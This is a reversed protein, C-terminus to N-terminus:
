GITAALVARHTPKAELYLQRGQETLVVFIGRRDMECMSRQVLGEREMRAVLRSAASQSLHVADTLEAGRCTGTTCEALRELAEFESVGIGHRQRLEAELAGSVAAHRALLHRWESVLVDEAVEGVGAITAHVLMRHMRM